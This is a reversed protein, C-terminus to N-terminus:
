WGHVGQNAGGEEERWEREERGGGALRGRRSGGGGFDVGGLFLSRLFFGGAIEDGEIRELYFGIGVVAVAGEIGVRDRLEVGREVLDRDRGIDEGLAEHAVDAGRRDLLHEVVVARAGASDHGIRFGVREGLLRAVAEAVLSEAHAAETAARDVAVPKGGRAGCIIEAGRGDADRAREVDLAGLDDATRLTQEVPRAPGAARDVGHGLAGVEVAAVALAFPADVLVAGLLALEVVVPAGIIDRKAEAIQVVRM